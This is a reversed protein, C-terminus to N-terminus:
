RWTMLGPSLGIAGNGRASGLGAGVIASVVTDVAPHTAVATIGEEGPIVRCPLDATRRALRRASDEDPVAALLREVKETRREVPHLKWGFGPPAVERVCEYWAVRTSSGREGAVAALALLLWSRLKDDSTLATLTVVDPEAYTRRFLDLKLGQWEDDTATLTARHEAELTPADAREYLALLIREELADLRGVFAEFRHVMAQLAPLVGLDRQLAELRPNLRRGQLQRKRIKTRATSLRFLDDHLGRITPGAAALHVRRRLVAAQRAVQGLSGGDLSVPLPRGRGDCRPAVTVSLAAGDDTVDVRGQLLVDGDADNVAVALPVLVEREICRKLPRAGFDDDHGRRALFTVAEDTVHLALRGHQIGDRQLLARCERGAIAETVTQDLSGFTVIHEIRNFLEPRFFARVQEVFVRERDRPRDTEGFGPPRRAASQAGLNSTMIVVSTCLSAVRGAGDTLRGDGLMQLLLDFFLPHAKEVEDFLLVAFPQERIKGTLTGAAGFTGGVLRDVALPDAYESMDFRSIRTRDGFLFEALTKAM